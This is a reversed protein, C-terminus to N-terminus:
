PSVMRMKGFGTEYPSLMRITLALHKFRWGEATRVYQDKYKAALWLAQDNKQMVMPQWLYWRGTATDGDVEIIPNAVQHVAFKVVSPSAAFFTRIAARGEAHGFAGGDWVGDEVFLSAIGDPEYDNDCFDCYRYKLQRIQEIDDLNKIMRHLASPSGDAELERAM